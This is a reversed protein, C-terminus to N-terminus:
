LLRLVTDKNIGEEGNIIAMMKTWEEYKLKQFVRRAWTEAEPERVELKEM